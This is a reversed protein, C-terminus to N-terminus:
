FFRMQKARRALLRFSKESEIVAQESLKHHEKLREKSLYIVVLLFCLAQKM